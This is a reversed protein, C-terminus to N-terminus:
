KNFWVIERLDLRNCVYFISGISENKYYVEDEDISFHIDIIAYRKGNVTKIFHGFGDYDMFCSALCNDLFAGVKFVADSEEVEVLDFEPADEFLKYKIKNQYNM